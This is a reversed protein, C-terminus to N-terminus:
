NWQLAKNYKYGSIQFPIKKVFLIFNHVFPIAEIQTFIVHAAIENVCCWGEQFLWAPLTPTLKMGILDQQKLKRCPEFM